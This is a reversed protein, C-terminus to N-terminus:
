ADSNGLDAHIMSFIQQERGQFYFPPWHLKIYELKIRRSVIGYHIQISGEMLDIWEYNNGVNINVLSNLLFVEVVCFHSNM